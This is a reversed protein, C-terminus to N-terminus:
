LREDVQDRDFFAKMDFIVSGEKSFHSLNIERFQDHAVALVVADYQAMQEAPPTDILVVEYEAEVDDRDAWPDYVDVQIGFDSLEDIVDIVRSNRIDPCNEKFTIGLVLVRSDLVRHGQKILLKIIRSAAYRGM